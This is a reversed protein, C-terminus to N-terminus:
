PPRGVFSRATHAARRRRPSMVDYLDGTRDTLFM